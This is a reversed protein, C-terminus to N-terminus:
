VRGKGTRRIELKVNTKKVEDKHNEQSSVLGLFPLIM